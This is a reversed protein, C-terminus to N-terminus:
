TVGRVREDKRQRRRTGKSYKRALRGAIVAFPNETAVYLKGSDHKMSLEVRIAEMLPFDLLVCMGNLYISITIIVFNM